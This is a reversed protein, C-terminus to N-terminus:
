ECAGLHSVNQEDLEADCRSAFTDGACTCVPQSYAGGNCIQEVNGFSRNSSFPMESTVCHGAGGCAGQAFQCWQGTIPCPWDSSCPQTDGVTAMAAAKLREKTFDWNAQNGLFGNQEEREESAIFEALKGDARYIFWDGRGPDPTVFGRGTAVVPMDIRIQCSDQSPDSCTDRCAPLERRNGQCAFSHPRPSRGLTGVADSRYAVGVIEVDFGEAALTEKLTQLYGIQQICTGCEAWYYTWMNVKGFSSPNLEQGLFPSDTNQDVVGWHDLDTCACKMANGSCDDENFEVCADVDWAANRAGFQMADTPEVYDGGM